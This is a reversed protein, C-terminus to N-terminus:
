QIGTNRGHSTEQDGYRHLRRKRKRSERFKKQIRIRNRSFLEENRELKIM